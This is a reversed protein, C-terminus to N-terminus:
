SLFKDVMEDYFSESIGKFEEEKGDCIIYMTNGDPQITSHGAPPWLKLTYNTKGGQSMIELKTRIAQHKAKTEPTM